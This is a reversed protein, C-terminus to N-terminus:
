RKGAASELKIGFVLRTFVVLCLMIASQMVGVAAAFQFNGAEMYSWTLVSLVPGRQTYLLVSASLEKISMLMVFFFLGLLVPKILPMTIRRIVTWRSAGSMRASEELERNIQMIGTRSVVVAYPLYKAVYALMLIWVTGYLPTRLYTWLLGIGYVVGPVAIPLVALLAVTSGLWSPRRLDLYSILGGIAVCVAGSLIGLMLTNRIALRTNEISFLKVYQDLTLVDMTISITSYKMFSFLILAALPLIVASLVYFCVIGYALWRWRGLRLPMSRHGKGGITVFRESVRTVRRQLLIGFVTVWLLITGSAAAHARQLPAVTSDIYIQWPLTTFGATTGIIGPLTYIEAALVFILLGAAFISPLMMPLTIRSVAQFPTAGATRAAEELSADMSKLNNVTFLYAFPCFFLFMVWVVGAYSWINIIPWPEGGFVKVVEAFGLNIFGTRSSGLVIWAILGTFPSLFLPMFILLDFVGKGRIDTRAIIFAMAVGFALALTTVLGALILAQMLFGLYRSSTYVEIVAAMSRETSLGYSTEAYFASDITYLLPVIAIVFVIFGLVAWIMTESLWRLPLRRQPASIQGGRTTLSNPVDSM